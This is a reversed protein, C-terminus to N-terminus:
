SSRAESAPIHLPLHIWLLGDHLEATVRESEVEAPLHLEREFTGYNIEMAIVNVSQEPAECDPEPPPRTGSILLRNPKTKVSLTRREVGALDVCVVFHDACRYANVAPQWHDHAGFSSFHIRTIQVAIEGLERELRELHRYPDNM